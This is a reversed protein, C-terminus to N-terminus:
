EVKVGKYYQQFELVELNNPHRTTKAVMLEDVGSRLNLYNRLAFAAQDRTYASTSKLVILSPTQREESISVAAVKPDALVLKNQEEIQQPTKQSKVSQFLLASTCLILMRRLSLTSIM